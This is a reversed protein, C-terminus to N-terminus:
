TKQLTIVRSGIIPHRYIHGHPTKGTIAGSNVYFTVPNGNDYFDLLRRFAESAKEVRNYDDTTVFNDIHSQRVLRLYEDETPMYPTGKVLQKLLSFQRELSQIWFEIQKRLPVTFETNFSKVGEDGYEDIIKDLSTGGIGDKSSVDLSFWDDGLFGSDHFNLTTQLTAVNLLHRLTRPEYRESM